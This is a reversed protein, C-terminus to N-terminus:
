GGTKSWWKYVTTRSIGLERAVETVSAEPHDNRYATVMQQKTPAGLIDGNERMFGLAMERNQKCVNIVPRGKENEWQIAHLHEKRNRENRKVPIRRFKYGLWEELTESSANYKAADDYFREIAEVNKINFSDGGWDFVAWYAALEHLDRLFVDRPVKEKFAIMALAKM